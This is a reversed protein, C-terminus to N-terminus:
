IKSFSMFRPYKELLPLVLWNCNIHWYCYVYYAYPIGNMFFAQSGNWEGQMNSASDYGQGRLDAVSLEHNSLVTSICKHLTKSTDKIHELELFRAQVFGHKDVFRIVIAMQEKKINRSEDIIICFKSDGIEKRIENRVKQAFM